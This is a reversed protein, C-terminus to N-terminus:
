AGAYAVVMRSFNAPVLQDAVSSAIQIRVYDGANLYLEDSISVFVASPQAAISMLSGDIVTSNVVIRLNASGTTNVRAQAAIRYYGSVPAVAREPLGSGHMGGVDYTESDFEINLFTNPTPTATQMDTTKLLRVRPVKGNMLAWAGAVRQFMWNNDLRVAFAGDRPTWAQLETNNRVPLIGGEAATYPHTQSIVTTSTAVDLSTVVATALELAGAPISPKSPTLDPAGQTVGFQPTYVGTDGYLDFRCRVWIVDIRSNSGPAATTTVSAPGDNAVLEIGAGNRSTAAIFAAVSYAMGATGTVIASTHAPLVGVRPAGSAARAILGSLILRTDAISLGAADETPFSDTLTM